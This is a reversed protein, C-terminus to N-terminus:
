LTLGYKEIKRYLTTRGIGLLESAKTLNSRAEMIAGVIAEKELTELHFSLTKEVVQLQSLKQQIHTAKLIPPTKHQILIDQLVYQLERANGPWDVKVVVDLFSQEVLPESIGYQASLEKILWLTLDQIDSKREKLAPIFVTFLGIRHHLDERVIGQQVFIKLDHHSSFMFRVTSAMSENEIDMYKLLRKQLPNPLSEIHDIYLTGGKALSLAGVAKDQICGFFLRELARLPISKCDLAIFPGKARRSAHHIGQALASKGTGRDGIILFPADHSAAKRANLVTMRILDSKGQIDELTYLTKHGVWQNAASIWMESRSIGVYKLGDIELCQVILEDEEFPYILTTESEAFAEWTAKIFPKSTELQYYSHEATKSHPSMRDGFHQYVCMFPNFQMNEARNQAENADQKIKKDRYVVVDSQASKFELSEVADILSDFSSQFTEYQNLPMILNLYFNAKPLPITVSACAHLKRKYHEHGLLIEPSNSDLALELTNTGHQEESFDIGEFIWDDFSDSSYLVIRKQSVFYFHPTEFFAKMLKQVAVILQFNEKQIQEVDLSLTTKLTIGEPDLNKLRCRVWSYVVRDPIIERKLIGKQIFLSWADKMRSDNQIYNSM